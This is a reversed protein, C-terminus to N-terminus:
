GILVDRTGSADLVRQVAASPKTIESKIGLDNLREHTSLLSGLGASDIFGVGGLDLVLADVDHQSVMREIASELKFAAAMDLDGSLAVEATTGRLECDLGLDSTM